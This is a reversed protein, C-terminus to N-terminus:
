RRRIPSRRDRVIGFGVLLVGARCWCPAPAGRGVGTSRRLRGARGPLVAAPAAQAAAPSASPSATDKGPAEVPDVLAGVPKAAAAQSFGWDLLAAAAPETKGVIGMM